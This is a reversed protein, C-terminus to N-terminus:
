AALDGDIISAYWAQEAEAPPIYGLRELLRRNNYWDVWTLTALEVEARNKWSKRHIVEAKYLGNISEAMANDYSDGTSGTSALLDADKLRQTYALLVYQSGKDSHHITGSPRRAWLAQELADLVFTTEMSSSVRWGVIRGAFVDIIFAVYAFGQWTSVYTFDAVWLQNPREAVFQRNVRDGAAADKRSVTTRVKKGRRVGVLGMVTMLRAVTCRAVSIGERLLQRWVKRVGYVSHNEDYVRQIEPKLLDDRQVRQSRREPHRRHQQHRYYTSPAIDLEHCVPGVGHEDRLTNVLPMIKEVPPRVGGEGFYASAQRLIDNSRRLERVERELEKLRQREATTLGGDGTGADRKYQRLWTRLTEPTCGIKPAISSIAAWQSGYDNQSEIVMRIARQRVEPSFRTNKTM